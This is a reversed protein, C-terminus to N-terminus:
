NAMFLPLLREQEHVELLKFPLIGTGGGLHDKNLYFALEAKKSM